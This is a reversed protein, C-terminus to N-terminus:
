VNGGLARLAHLQARLIGNTLTKAYSAIVLEEEPTLKHRSPGELLCDLLSAYSLPQFLECAAPRGTPTLFLGARVPSSAELWSWYTHTQGDHEHSWVKNEIALLFGPGSILIDIRELDAETGPGERGLVVERRISLCESHIAEDLM